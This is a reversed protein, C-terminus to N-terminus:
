FSDLHLRSCVKKPDVCMGVVEYSVERYRWVVPSQSSMREDFQGGSKM